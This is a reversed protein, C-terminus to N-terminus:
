TGEALWSFSMPRAMSFIFAGLLLMLQTVLSLISQTPHAVDVEKGIGKIFSESDSQVGHGGLGMIFDNAM